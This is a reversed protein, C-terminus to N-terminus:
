LADELDREATITTTYGATDELPLINGLVMTADSGLLGVAANIGDQFAVAEAYTHFNKTVKRAIMTAEM